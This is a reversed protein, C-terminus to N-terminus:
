MQALGRFVSTDRAADDVVTANHIIRDDVVIDRRSCSEIFERVLPLSWKRFDNDTM